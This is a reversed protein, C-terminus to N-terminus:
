RHGVVGVWKKKQVKNKGMKKNKVMQPLKINPINRM